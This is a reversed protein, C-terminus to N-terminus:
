RYLLLADAAAMQEAQKKTRGRGVCKLEGAVYLGVEYEPAHAPGITKLLRYEPLQHLQEQVVEQLESKMDKVSHHGAAIDIAPFITEGIVATVEILDSDTFIAGVVAEFANALISKRKRGGSKEEGKGLRLYSGLDHKLALTALGDECVVESRIRTLAGEPLERYMDFLYKGVILDLVADGLFELRENNAVLERPHENCWSSHTIAETFLSSDKFTYSFIESHM